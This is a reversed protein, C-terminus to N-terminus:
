TNQQETLFYFFALLPFHSSKRNKKKKKKSIARGSGPGPVPGAGPWARPWDRAMGQGTGPWGQRAWPSGYPWPVGIPGWPRSQYDDRMAIWLFFLSRFGVPLCLPIWRSYDLSHIFFGEMMQMQSTIMAGHPDMFFDQSIRKFDLPSTGPPYWNWQVVVELSDM